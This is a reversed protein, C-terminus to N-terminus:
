ALSTFLYSAEDAADFTGEKEAKGAEEASAWIPEPYRRVFGRYIDITPFVEPNRRGFHEICEPCIRGIGYREATMADAVVSEVEFDHRCLGCEWTGMEDPTHARQLDILM